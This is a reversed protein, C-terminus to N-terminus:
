RRRTRGLVAAIAQKANRAPAVAYGGPGLDLDAYILFPDGAAEVRLSDRLAILGRKLVRSVPMGTAEQIESLIRESEPDLRVTRTAM